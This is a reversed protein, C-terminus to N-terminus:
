RWVGKQCLGALDILNQPSSSDHLEHSVMIVTWDPNTLFGREIEAALSPNIGACPEDLLYVSKHQALARAILIRQKEGGSLNRGGAEVPYDMGHARVFEALGASRIIEKWETEPVLTEFFINECLSGEFLYGKQPLYAIQRFLEEESMDDIKRGRFRITGEMPKLSKLLLKFLTSKGSGNKGTLVLKSGEEINWSPIALLTKGEREFRVDELEFVPNSTVAGDFTVRVNESATKDPTSKANATGSKKVVVAVNETVIGAQQATKEKEEDADCEEFAEEPLANMGGKM